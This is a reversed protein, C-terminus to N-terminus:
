GFFSGMGDWAVAESMGSSDSTYTDAKSFEGMRCTMFLPMGREVSTCFCSDRKAVISSDCCDRDAFPSSNCKRLAVSESLLSIMARIM